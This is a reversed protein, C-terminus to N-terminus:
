KLLLMKKSSCNGGSKLRYFYIGSAVINGNDDTGDWIIEHPGAPLMENVPEAVKQGLINYVTITTQETRALSFNIKTSLNFPNPYNQDLQFVGPLPSDDDVGLTKDITISQLIVQPAAYPRDLYSSYAFFIKNVEPEYYFRSFQGVIGITPIEAQALLNWEHDCVIVQSNNFGYTNTVILVYVYGVQLINALYTDGPEDWLEIGSIDAYDVELLIQKNDYDVTRIETSGRESILYRDGVPFAYCEDWFSSASGYGCYVYASYTEESLLQMNSFDVGNYGCNYERCYTLGEDVCTYWPYVTLVSDDFKVLPTNGAPAPDYLYTEMQGSVRNIMFMRNFMFQEFPYYSWYNAQTIYIFSDVAIIEPRYYYRSAQELQYPNNIDDPTPFEESFPIFFCDRSWELTRSYILGKYDGLDYLYPTVISDDHYIQHDGGYLANGNFDYKNGTIWSYGPRTEQKYLLIGDENALIDPHDYFTSHYLITDNVFPHEPNDLDLFARFADFLLIGQSDRVIFKRGEASSVSEADGYFVPTGITNTVPDIDVLILTDDYDALFAIDDGYRVFDIFEISRGRDVSTLIISDFENSYTTSDAPILFYKLIYDGADPREIWFYFASDETYPCIYHGYAWGSRDNRITDFVTFDGESTIYAPRIITDRSEWTCLYLGDDAAKISYQALNKDTIVEPIVPNPDPPHYKNIAYDPYTSNTICWIYEGDPILEIVAPIYDVPQDDIFNLNEDIRTYYTREDRRTFIYYYPESWIAGWFFYYIGGNNIDIHDIVLSATDVLNGYHDIRSVLCGGFKNGWIALDYVPGPCYEFGLDVESGPLMSRAKFYETPEPTLIQPDSFEINDALVFGSLLLGSIGLLFALRFFKGAKM